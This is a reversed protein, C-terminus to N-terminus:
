ADRDPLHPRLAFHARRPSRLRGAQPEFRGPGLGVSATRADVAVASQDPRGGAVARRPRLLVRHGGLHEQSQDSQPADHGPRGEPEDAGPGHPAAQPLGQATRREGARRDDAPPSQGLSRHRRDAGDRGVGHLAILYAISAILDEPRLTMEDEAVDSSSNAISASGASAAWAIATSTSSSRTFCRGPRKWSRRIAPVCGSTSGCCPRKTAAVDRRGGPQQLDAADEAAPM